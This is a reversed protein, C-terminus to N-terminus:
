LGAAQALGQDLGLYQSVAQDGQLRVTVRAPKGPDIDGVTLPTVGSRKGNVSVEAGAPESSVMIKGYAPVLEVDRMVAEGARLTVQLKVEERMPKTVRIEHAVDARLPIPDKWAGDALPAGDGWVQAGDTAINLKLHGTGPGAAAAPRPAATLVSVDNAALTVQQKFEGGDVTKVSVTHPGAPLEKLTLPAGPDVHGKL